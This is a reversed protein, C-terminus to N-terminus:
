VSYRKATNVVTTIVYKIDDETMGPWLPLSMSSKFKLDAQPFDEPKLNYRNKFFSMYFHPIFHVSMGLGEEQLKVIFEDRNIKLKEPKIRLIYLHWANGDGDPPCLLSDIKSFAKTYEEAIKKRAEFLYVARKLQARGLAALLDPLNCKWGDEVVDYLWSAKIDTYRDWVTRNIGHMRMIKIREAIAENNTCVMGGEASTITKTAYFSFVGATGLTGAYGDKTKSPFAHAADEIVAANYKKALYNIDKMNCVKGAIHIPIIAKVNSETKLIDEIKNPDISYDEKSIDAYLVDAGLHIASTATSVFTYPSTIVKSGQKVGCAELALLLGSTASNVALSYKAGTFEAFEAEFKLAEAGTTLWGSRLIETVAKEEEEFIFPKFFSVSRKNKIESM